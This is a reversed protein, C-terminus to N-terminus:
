AADMSSAPEHNATMPVDRPAAVVQLDLRVRAESPAYYVVAAVLPTAVGSSAGSKMRERLKERLKVFSRITTSSTAHRNAMDEPHMDPARMYLDYGGGCSQRKVVRMRWGRVWCDAEAKKAKLDVALSWVAVAEEDGLLDEELDSTKVRGGGNVSTREVLKTCCGVDDGDDGALPKEPQTIMLAQREREARRAQKEAAAQRTAELERAADPDLSASHAEAEERRKAMMELQQQTRLLDRKAGQEIARFERDSLEVREIHSLPEATLATQGPDVRHANFTMTSHQISSICVRYNAAPWGSRGYQEAIEPDRTLWVVAGKRRVDEGVGEGDEGGMCPLLVTGLKSVPRAAAYSREVEAEQQRAEQAERAAHVAKEDRAQADDEGSVPPHVPETSSGAGPSAGPPATSPKQKKRGAGQRKGASAKEQRRLYEREAEQKARAAQRVVDDNFVEGDEDFVESAERKTGPVRVLVHSAGVVSHNPPPYAVPLALGLHPPPEGAEAASGRGTMSPTPPPEVYLRHFSTPDTKYENLRAEFKAAHGPKSKMGIMDAINGLAGDVGAIKDLLWPLTSCPFKKQFEKAYQELQIVSFFRDISLAQPPPACVIATAAASSAKKFGPPPAAM